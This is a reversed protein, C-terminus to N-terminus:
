SLRERSTLLIKLNLKIVNKFHEWNGQVTLYTSPVFSLTFKIKRLALYEVFDEPDFGNELQSQIKMLISTCDVSTLKDFKFYYCLIKFSEISDFGIELLNDYKGNEGIWKGM